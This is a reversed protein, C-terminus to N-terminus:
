IVIKLLLNPIDGYFGSVIANQSLGLYSTFDKHMAFTKLCTFLKLHKPQSIKKSFSLPTWFVLLIQGFEM